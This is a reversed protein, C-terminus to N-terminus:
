QPLKYKHIKFSPKGPITIKCTHIQESVTIIENQVESTYSRQIKCGQLPWVTLRFM